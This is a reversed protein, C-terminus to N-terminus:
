ASPASRRIPSCSPKGRTTKPWRPAARRTGAIPRVTVQDHGAEHHELRVLIEPSLGVVQMDGIDLFYMYPSPHLARLAHYVDVPRAKFPVSLRQSLVVQFIDGNRIYDRAKEVAKIFGNRTFGSVFDAEDLGFGVNGQVAHERPQHRTGPAQM